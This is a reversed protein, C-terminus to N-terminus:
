SAGGGEMKRCFSPRVRVLHAQAYFPRNLDHDRCDMILKTTVEMKYM